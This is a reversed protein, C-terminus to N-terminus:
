SNWPIPLLNLIPWYQDTSEPDAAAPM